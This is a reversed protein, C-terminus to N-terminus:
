RLPSLAFARPWSTTSFSGLGKVFAEIVLRQAKTELSENKNTYAGNDYATKNADNGLCKYAEVLETFTESEQGDNKDPHHENAQSRYAKKIQEPTADKEVGLIDYYDKNM